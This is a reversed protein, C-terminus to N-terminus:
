RRGTPRGDLWIRAHRRSVTPDELQVANGPARGITMGGTVPVRTRDPLVLEFQM